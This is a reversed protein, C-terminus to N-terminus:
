FVGWKETLIPRFETVIRSFEGCESDFDEKVQAWIAFQQGVGSNIGAKYVDMPSVPSDALRGNM